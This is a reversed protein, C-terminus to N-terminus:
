NSFILCKLRISCVQWQSESLVIVSILTIRGITDMSSKAITPKVIKHRAVKSMARCM